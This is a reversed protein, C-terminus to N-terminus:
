LDGVAAVLNRIKSKIAADVVGGETEVVCGSLITPDAVIEINKLSQAAAMLEDRHEELVGSHFPNVKVTAQASHTVEAIAQRTISLIAGPSLELEKGVLREAVEISLLALSDEAERYWQTMAERVSAGILDLEAAIRAIEAKLAIAGESLAQERGQDFGVIIGAAQGEAFGEKYAKHRVRETPSLKRRNTGLDPLAVLVESIAELAAKSSAAILCKSNGKAKLLPGETARRAWAPASEEGAGENSALM